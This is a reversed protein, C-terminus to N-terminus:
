CRERDSAERETGMEEPIEDREFAIDPTETKATVEARIVVDHLDDKFDGEFPIDGERNSHESCNDELIIEEPIDEESHNDDRSTVESRM